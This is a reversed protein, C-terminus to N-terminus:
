ASVLLNGRLKLQRSWPATLCAHCGGGPSYKGSVSVVGGAVSLTRIDAPWETNLGDPVWLSVYHPKGARWDYVVLMPVYLSGGSFCVVSVVAEEVGDGTLDGFAVAETEVTWFTDGCLAVVPHVYHPWDVGRIAQAPGLKVKLFLTKSVVTGGNSRVRLAYLGTASPRISISYGGSSSVPGAARDSWRGGGLSRQVVVRRTAGSPTVAGSVSVSAGLDISTKSLKAGITVSAADAGGPVVLLVTALIAGCVFVRIAGM